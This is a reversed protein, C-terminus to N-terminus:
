SLADLETATFVVLSASWIGNFSPNLRQQCSRLLPSQHERLGYEMLLLILVSKTTGDVPLGVARM